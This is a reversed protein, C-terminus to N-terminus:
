GEAATACQDQQDADMWIPQTTCGCQDRQAGSIQEVGHEVPASEDTGASCYFRDCQPGGADDAIQLREFSERLEVSEMHVAGAQAGSKWGVHGSQPQSEVAECGAATEQM